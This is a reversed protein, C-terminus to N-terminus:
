IKVIEVLYTLGTDDKEIQVASEPIGADSILSRLEDETREILIWNFIRNLLKRKSADLDTGINTFFLTGGVALLEWYVYKVIKVIMCNPLYDFLGGVVVADFNKSEKQESLGLIKSLEFVNGKIFSCSLGYPELKSKSHDLAGQDM